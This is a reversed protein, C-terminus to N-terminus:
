FSPQADGVGISPETLQLTFCPVVQQPNFVVLEAGSPSLHSDYGRKCDKGHYPNRVTNPGPCVFVKKVVVLCCLLERSGGNYGLSTRAYRGFYLGKGFWGMNKTNIGIKSMSFNHEIIATRCDDRTGHFCLFLFANAGIRNVKEMFQLYLRRNLHFGVSSVRHSLGGLTSECQRVVLDYYPDTRALDVHRTSNGAPLRSLISMPLKFM